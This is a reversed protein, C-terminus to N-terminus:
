NHFNTGVKHREMHCLFAQETNHIGDIMKCINYVGTYIDRGVYVPEISIPILLLM